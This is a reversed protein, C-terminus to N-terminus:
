RLVDLPVSHRRGVHIACHPAPFGAGVRSYGCRDAPSGLDNALANLAINRNKLELGLAINEQYSARLEENTTELEENAASLQENAAMLAARTVGQGTALAIRADLEKRRTTALSRAGRWPNAHM